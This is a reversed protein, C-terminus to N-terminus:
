QNYGNVFEIRMDLFPLWPWWSPTMLIQPEDALPLYSSLQQVAQAIPTGVPMSLTRKDPLTTQLMRTAKITLPTKQDPGPVSNSLTTILLSNAGSEYGPPTSTDMIPNIFNRLTETAIVQAQFRMQLRLELTNGPEGVAPFSTQSITETGTITSTILYDNAPLSSYLENQAKQLVNNLLRHRLSAMDQASPSPITADTGGIMPEPNTVTLDPEMIGDIKVLEDPSLNSTSGPKVAQAALTVTEGPEVVVAERSTTIFKVPETDLTSVVTGTPISLSQESHNSFLLNGMAPKDPFLLSGTAPITGDGEVVVQQYYAPLNGLSYNISIAGPDAIVNFIMSQDKVAPSLIIKASPLFTAGLTLLFLIFLVLFGLRALPRDLWVRPNKHRHYIHNVLELYHSVNGRDFKKHQPESWQAELASQLSEYIPINLQRAYFRVQADHTVLALQAGLHDACRDILSLDLKRELIKGKEPWILLIRGAQSWSMRERVSIHDDDQNLQIIQTKM